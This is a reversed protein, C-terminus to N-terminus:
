IFGKNTGVVGDDEHVVQAGLHGLIAGVSEQGAADREHVLHRSEAVRHTRVHVLNPHPDSRIAADALGKQEGPHAIATGAKGLIHAGENADALLVADGHLHQPGGILNVLCLFM